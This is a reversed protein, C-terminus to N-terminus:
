NQLVINRQDKYIFFSKWSFPGSRSQSSPIGASAPLIDHRSQHYAMILSPPLWCYLCCHVTHCCLLSVTTHFFTLFITDLSLFESIISQFSYSHHKHPLYFQGSPLPIYPFLYHIYMIPISCISFPCFHPRATFPDDNFFPLHMNQLCQSTIVLKFPQNSTHVHIAFSYIFFLVDQLQFYM